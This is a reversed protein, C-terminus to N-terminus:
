PLAEPQSVCTPVSPKLIMVSRYVMNRDDVLVKLRASESVRNKHNRSLTRPPGSAQRFEAFDSPSMLPQLPVMVRSTTRVMFVTDTAKDVYEKLSQGDGSIQKVSYCNAQGGTVTVKRHGMQLFDKDADASKGGLLAHASISFGLLTALIIKM